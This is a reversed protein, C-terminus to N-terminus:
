RTGTIQFDYIARNTGSSFFNDIQIMANTTTAARTQAVLDAHGIASPWGPPESARKFTGGSHAFKMVGQYQNRNFLDIMNYSLYKGNGPSGIQTGTEYYTQCADSSEALCGVLRLLYQPTAAGSNQKNILINGVNMNASQTVYSNLGPVVSGFASADWVWSAVKGSRKAYVDSPTDTVKLPSTGGAAPMMLKMGTNTLMGAWATSTVAADPLPCPTKYINDKGGRFFMIQASETWKKTSYTYTREIYCEFEKIFGPPLEENVACLEVHTLPTNTAGSDAWTGWSAVVKRYKRRRRDCKKCIPNGPMWHCWFPASDEDDDEANTDNLAADVPLENFKLANVWAPFFLAVFYM